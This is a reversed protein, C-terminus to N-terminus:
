CFCVSYGYSGHKCDGKILTVSWGRECVSSKQLECIMALIFLSVISARVFDDKMWQRGGETSRNATIITTLSSTFFCLLSHIKCINSITLELHTDWPIKYDYFLNFQQQPFLGCNTWIEGRKIVEHRFGYIFTHPICWKFQVMSHLGTEFLFSM